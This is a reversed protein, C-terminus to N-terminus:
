FWREGKWTVVGLKSTGGVSLEESTGKTTVVRVKKKQEYRKELEKKLLAKSLTTTNSREEISLTILLHLMVNM